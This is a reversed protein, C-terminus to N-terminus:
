RLLLATGVAEVVHAGAKVRFPRSADHAVTFLAEGHLLQLERSKGALSLVPATQALSRHAGQSLRNMGPAEVVSEVMTNWAQCAGCQGTWKSSTGGCESCTYQTKPKAM